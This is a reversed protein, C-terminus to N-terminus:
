QVIGNEKKGAAFTLCKGCMRAVKNMKEVSRSREM